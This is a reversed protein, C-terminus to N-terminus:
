EVAAVPVASRGSVEPAQAAPQESLRELWIERWYSPIARPCFMRKYSYRSQCYVGDLMISASKFHLMKGTRESIIRSVRAKVRYTGNCFPVGEADFYLGRYSSGMDLTDLIEKHSRVRVLEGPILNSTVTPTKQGKPISGNKRPFPMGGIRAQFADHARILPSYLDVGLRRSAGQTKQAVKTFLVYALGRLMREADVNGSTFDEVYQRLDWWPLYKSAQELTTAQCVYTPDAQGDGTQAGDSGPVVTARRVAEETCAGPVVPAAARSPDGNKVPSVATPGDARRLWAEKWFIMCAAQCGGHGGGDCRVDELHVAAEISRGTVNIVDCTKHARKFVQFRRGCYQFMEPMFHMGDLRGQPDLTALIEQKSRVEVWEGARLELREQM